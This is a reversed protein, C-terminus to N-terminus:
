TMSRSVCTQNRAYFLLKLLFYNQDTDRERDRVRETNRKRKRETQGREKKLQKSIDAM